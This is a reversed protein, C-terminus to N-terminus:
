EITIDYPLRTYIQDSLKTKQNIKIIKMLSEPLIAKAMKISADGFQSFFEELSSKKKPFVEVNYDTLQALEAAKVIAEEVGGIEDVLGINKAEEGSWVRGQAIEHAQETSELTKRGQVVVNLFDGYISDVLGQMKSYEEPDLKRVLAEVDAFRHSKETDFTMGVTDNWFKKTALTLGFVGISGTITTNEAFIYNSGASMYYGGSAAVNGFSTVVPKKDKLWQTSAWIVDSALASGGHSNVRVVVAKVDEERNIKRLLESLRESSIQDKEGKGSVIEGEAFVVAVKDGSQFMNKQALEKYYTRWSTYEPKEEAGTLEVLKREVEEFTSLFNVFGNEFAQKAQVVALENALQELKTKELQTKESAFETMRSWQNLLLSQIQERSEPSMKDNIFPEIASKYKGVRFIQPVIDLKAMTNKVFAPKSYVGNWEFYGRPYLIVEDSASALAYSKESYYEAYTIVFKGTKKFKVIERRLAEINALGGSLWKIDLLLGKIRDDEAAAKLTQTLEYLGVVPPQDYNMLSEFIDKSQIQDVLPGNFTVRLVSDDNVSGIDSGWKKEGGLSAAGAVILLFM